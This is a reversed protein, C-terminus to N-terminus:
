LDIVQELNAFELTTESNTHIDLKTYVEFCKIQRLADIETINSEKGKIIGTNWICSKNTPSLFWNTLLDKDEEYTLLQFGIPKGWVGEKMKRYGMKTLAM